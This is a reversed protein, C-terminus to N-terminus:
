RAGIREDLGKVHVEFFHGVHDLISVFDIELEELLTCALDKGVGMAEEAAGFRKRRTM